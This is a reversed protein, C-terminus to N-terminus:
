RPLTITARGFLWADVSYAGPGILALAAADISRTVLSIPMAGEDAGLMLVGAVSASLAIIRTAFGAALSVALGDLVLAPLSRWDLFESASACVVLAVSWRLLVLAVGAIGGKPISRANRRDGMRPVIVPM